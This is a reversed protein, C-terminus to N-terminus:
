ERNLFKEVTIAGTAQNLSFELGIPTNDTGDNAYELGPVQFILGVAPDYRAELMSFEIGTFGLSSTQSILKCQRLGLEDYPPSLVMIHFAASAPEWTDILALRVRGESFTRTNDEWPEALNAAGSQWGCDNVVQAMAGTALGCTVAASFILTKLTKM